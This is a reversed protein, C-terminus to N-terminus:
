FGAVNLESQQVLENGAIFDLKLPTVQQQQSTRRLKVVYHQEGSSGLHITGDAIAVADVPYQMRSVGDIEMGSAAFNVIVESPGDSMLRVDLTFLGDRAYLEVQGNLKGTKLQLRDLLSESQENLGKKVMTGSM